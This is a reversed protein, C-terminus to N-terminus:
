QVRRLAFSHCFEELSLPLGSWGRESIRRLERVSYDRSDIIAFTRVSFPPEGGSAAFCFDESVNERCRSHKGRMIVLPRTARLTSDSIFLNNLHMVLGLGISLFFRLLHFPPVPRALSTRVFSRVPRVLQASSLHSPAGPPLDLSRRPFSCFPRAASLAPLPGECRDRSIAADNRPLCNIVSM